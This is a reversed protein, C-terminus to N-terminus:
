QKVPMGFGSQCVFDFFLKSFHENAEKTYRIDTFVQALSQKGNEEIFKRSDERSETAAYFAKIEDNDPAHYKERHIIAEIPLRGSDVGKDAPWGLTLTTVPVVLQPLELLSAISAANYTTTGLYCCGLGRSEAATCFQQAFISTDILASIFSHFNDYGPNADSIQCWQTFRNFDACFTLIVNCNIACPQNFHFPALKKKMEPDRTVIVSYTQMNGTNPAHSAETILQQLLEDSVHRDTYNRVTHRGTFYQQLDM